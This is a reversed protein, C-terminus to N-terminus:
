VLDIIKVDPNEHQLCTLIFEREFDAFAHLFIVCEFPTDVRSMLHPIRSSDTVVSVLDTEMAKMIHAGLAEADEKRETYLRINHENIRMRKLYFSPVVILVGQGILDAGKLVLRITLERLHHELREINEVM